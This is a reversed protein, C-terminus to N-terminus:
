KDKDALRVQMGETVPLSSTTIVYDWLNESSSLATNTEDSAVVKVDVRKAIYRNGLPTQKAEVMLIFTGNNDERVANNPVVNSYGKNSSGLTFSINQGNYLDEGTVSLTVIKSQGRSSPDSKISVVTAVPTEGYWYYEIDAIDGVRIRASQENTVSFSMTYGREALSIDCLANGVSVEEGSIVYISDVTGTVNALVETSLQANELKVIYAKQKDIRAELKEIDYAHREAELKIELLRRELSLNLSDLEKQSSSLQSQLDSDKIAIIETLANKSEKCNNLQKDNEAITAECKKIALQQKDINEQFTFYAIYAEAKKVDDNYVSM